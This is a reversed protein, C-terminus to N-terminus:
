TSRSTSSAENLTITSPSPNASRSRRRGDRFIVARKPIVKPHKNMGLSRQPPATCFHRDSRSTGAATLNHRRSLVILTGEPSYHCMKATRDRCGMTPNSQSAIYIIGKDFLLKLSLNRIKPGHLENLAAQRAQNSKSQMM